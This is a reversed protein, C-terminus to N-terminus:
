KKSYFRFGKIETQNNDLLTQLADLKLGYRTNTPLFLAIKKDFGVQKKYNPYDETLYHSKYYLPQQAYEEVYDFYDVQQQTLKVKIREKLLPLPSDDFDVYGMFSVKGSHFHIKILQIDEIDGYLQIGCGIYVRLVAPLLDIFDKHFTLSHNALLTSAPLIQQAALSTEAILETDAISFLLERAITIANNYNGFFAKVDHQLSDPLQTYPKRKDFQSLSFYVLLDDKRYQEAQAFENHEFLNDLLTFTKQHSVVLTKIKTSASFEDNAPIRGLALCTNWFEKFLQENEVYVLEFKEKNSTPRTTIQKWHHQRKQRDALFLQEELKDKFVFFIGPGVAIANEDLTNEIFAQLESQSFYKQFTNLSTIVGDKYPTFKQTHAEGAIMAAIVILKDALEFALHLAEIREERDEIVNIVFGINVLDCTFRDVEPRHTPDWGAADIGHAELEKLDDGLGCGYDFVTYEGNLYDHKALAKMPTSLSQRQIATKHRDIKNDTTAANIVASLRFLRGDVLEYGHQHIVREWSKKFGIIRSNEYLGAAEGEATISLFEAYHEDDPSIFLEKRHLIPANETATYDAIKQTKNDLDVTISNHLAPYSDEHFQPYNLYSIRFQQTHLKIINWNNDPIKLANAILIIFDKLEPPIAHFASHHLYRANGVLKGLKVSKILQNFQVAEM